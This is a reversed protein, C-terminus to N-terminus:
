IILGGGYVNMTQLTNQPNMLYAGGILHASVKFVQSNFLCCITPFVSGKKVSRILEMGTSTGKYQCLNLTTRLCEYPLGREPHSSNISNHKPHDQQATAEGCLESTTESDSHSV